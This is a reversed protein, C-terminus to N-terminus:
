RDLLPEFVEIYEALRHTVEFALEPDRFDFEDWTESIRRWRDNGIFAGMVPEDGLKRRWKKDHAALRGLVADNREPKPYEAHFGIELEISGATRGRVLQVEYHEKTREGTGFTVKLGYGHAYGGFNAYPAAVVTLLADRVQEFFEIGSSDPM